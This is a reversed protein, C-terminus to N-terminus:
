TQDSMPVSLYHTELEATCTPWVPFILWSHKVDNGEASTISSNSVTNDAKAKVIAVTQRSHLAVSRLRLLNGRM